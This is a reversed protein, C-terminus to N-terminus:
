DESATSVTEEGGKRTSGSEQASPAMSRHERTGHQQSHRRNRYDNSSSAEEGLPMTVPRTGMADGAGPATGIICYQSSLRVTRESLNLVIVNHVLSDDGLEAHVLLGTSFLHSNRCLMETTPAPSKRVPIRYRVKPIIDIVPIGDQLKSCRMSMRRNEPSIIEVLTNLEFDLVVSM